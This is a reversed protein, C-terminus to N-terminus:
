PIVLYPTASAAQPPKATAALGLMALAFSLTLAIAAFGDPSTRRRPLAQTNAILTM